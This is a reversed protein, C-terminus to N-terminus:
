ADTWRYHLWERGNSMTRPGLAYMAVEGEDVLSSVLHEVMARPPKPARLAAYIQEMSKPEQAPGPIAEAVHECLVDQDFESARLVERM